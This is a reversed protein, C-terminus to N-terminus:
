QKVGEQVSLKKARHCEYAIHDELQYPHNGFAEGCYKCRFGYAMGMSDYIMLDVLYFGLSGTHKKM